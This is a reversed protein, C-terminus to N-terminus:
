NRRAGPVINGKADLVPLEGPMKSSNYGLTPDAVLGLTLQMRQISNVKIGDKKAPIFKASKLWPILIRQIRGGPDIASVVEIDSVEGSRTIRIALVLRGAVSLEGAFLGTELPTLLEANSDVLKAEFYTEDPAALPLQALQVRVQRPPVDAAPVPRVEATPPDSITQSETPVIRAQFTAALPPNSGIESTLGFLGFFAFHIFASVALALWLPLRMSDM